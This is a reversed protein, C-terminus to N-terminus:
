LYMIVLIKCWFNANYKGVLYNQLYIDTPLYIHVNNEFFFNFIFNVCVFGAGDDIQDKVYLRLMSEFIM